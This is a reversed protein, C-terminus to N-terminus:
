QYIRSARSSPWQISNSAAHVDSSQRISAGVTKGISLPILLCPRSHTTLIRPLRAYPESLQLEYTVVTPDELSISINNEDCHPLYSLPVDLVPRSVEKVWQHEITKLRAVAAVRRMEVGLTASVTRVNQGQEMVRYYIQDKMDESLVSQSRFQKNMPFPMLDEATEKPLGTGEPLTKEDSNRKQPDGHRVDSRKTGDARILGGDKNYANLYNTSNPLPQRFASGPGELWRYM